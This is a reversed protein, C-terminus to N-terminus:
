IPSMASETPLDGANSATADSPIVVFRIKIADITAM